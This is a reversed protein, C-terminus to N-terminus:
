CAFFGWSQKTSVKQDGIKFDLVFLRNNEHSVDAGNHVAGVDIASCGLGRLCWVPEVEVAVGCLEAYHTM